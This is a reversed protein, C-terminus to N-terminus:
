DELWLCVEAFEGGNFINGLTICGTDLYKDLMRIFDDESKVLDARDEDKAFRLSAFYVFGDHWEVVDFDLGSAARERENILNAVYEDTEATFEYLEDNTLEDWSYETKIEEALRQDYKEIMNKLVSLPLDNANFGYGIYTM